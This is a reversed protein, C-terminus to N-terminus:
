PCLWLACERECVGSTGTIHLVVPAELNRTKTKHAGGSERGQECSLHFVTRPSKTMLLSWRELVSAPAPSHVNIQVHNSQPNKQQKKKGGWTTAGHFTAACAVPPRM